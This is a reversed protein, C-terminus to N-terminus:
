AAPPARSRHSGRKDARIGPDFVTLPTLVRAVTLSLRFEAPPTTLLAPACCQMGCGAACGCGNDSGAPGHDAGDTASACLAHVFPSAAAVSLPLVIAQVVVLYAAALAILRRSGVSKSM